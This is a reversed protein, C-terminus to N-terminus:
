NEFVVERRIVWPLGFFDGKGESVGSILEIRKGSQGTRRDRPIFVTMKEIDPAGPQEGHEAVYSLLLARRGGVEVTINRLGGAM